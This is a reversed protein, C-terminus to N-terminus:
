CGGNPLCQKSSGLQTCTYGQPCDSSAQCAHGCFGTGSPNGGDTSADPAPGGRIICLGGVECDDNSNCASCLVGSGADHAVSARDSGSPPATADATPTNNAVGPSYLRDNRYCDDWCQDWCSPYCGWSDCYYYDCVTRCRRLTYDCDYRDGGDDCSVAVVLGFTM